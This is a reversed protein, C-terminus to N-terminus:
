RLPTSTTRDLMGDPVAVYVVRAVVAMLPVASLAHISDGMSGAISTEPVFTIATSSCWCDGDLESM